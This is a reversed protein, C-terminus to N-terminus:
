AKKTNGKTRDYFPIDAQKRRFIMLGIAGIFLLASLLQSVRLVDGIMLSDTRMGEIFFRGFSYWAVYILALEGEKLFNPRRRLIILLIFGLVNWVSEYLFTPQRYKGDIYMNEIIFSPLHLSELFELSVVKGFAEQNMFNGWRGIGQALIVSPAAVDLFKWTSIFRHRTFFYVVLGGAILGGYIALGGNRIALIESPNQMYYEWEFIVYYLRAGVIAIPLAWLMLDVVDDERLGVRVAERSALWSVLIIASVIIIAYWQIEIGFLKFATPNVTLLNM